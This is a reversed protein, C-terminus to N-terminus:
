RPLILTGDRARVERYNNTYYLYATLAALIADREDKSLRRRSFKISYLRMIELLDVKGFKKMLVKLTSRPHVEIVRIGAEELFSKLKIGRETLRRMGPFLPPLVPLGLKHMFKDVERLYGERPMTLPADIAVILPKPTVTIKVIEEDDYVKVVRLTMSQCDIEAIGTPRKASGALDIGVLRVM